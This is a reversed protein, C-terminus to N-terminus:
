FPSYIKANQFM